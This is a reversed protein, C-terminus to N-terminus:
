CVMILCVNYWICIQWNIIIAGKCFSSWIHGWNSNYNVICRALLWNVDSLQRACLVQCSSAVVPINEDFFPMQSSEGWTFSLHYHKSTLPWRWPPGRVLRLDFRLRLGLRAVLWAPRPPSGWHWTIIAKALIDKVRKEACPVAEGAPLRGHAPWTWQPLEPSNQRSHHSKWLVFHLNQCSM